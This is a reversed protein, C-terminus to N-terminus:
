FESGIKIIKAELWLLVSVWVTPDVLLLASDRFVPNILVSSSELRLESLHLLDGSGDDLFISDRM